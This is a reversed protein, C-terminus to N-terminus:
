LILRLLVPFHHHLGNLLDHAIQAGGVNIVFQLLLQDIPNKVGELFLCRLYAFVLMASFLVKLMFLNFELVFLM